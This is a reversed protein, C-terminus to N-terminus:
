RCSDQGADGHCGGQDATGQSVRQNQRVCTESASSPPSMELLNMYNRNARAAGEPAGAAEGLRFASVKVQGRLGARVRRFALLLLMCGTWAALAFVPRLMAKADPMAWEPPAFWTGPM